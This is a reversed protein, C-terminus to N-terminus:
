SEDASLFLIFFPLLKVEGFLINPENKIPLNFHQPLVVSKHAITSISHAFM